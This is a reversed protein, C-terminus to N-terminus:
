QLQDIEKKIIEKVVEELVNEKEYFKNKIRLLILDMKNKEHAALKMSQPMESGKKKM